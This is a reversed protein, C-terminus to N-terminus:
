RAQIFTAFDVLKHDSDMELVRIAGTEYGVLIDYKNSMTSLTTIREDTSPTSKEVDGSATNYIRMSGDDFGVIVQQGSNVFMAASPTLVSERLTFREQQLQIDWVSITGDAFAFVVNDSGQAYDLSWVVNGGQVALETPSFTEMDWVHVAGDTSGTVLTESDPSFVMSWIGHIACCARPSPTQLVAYEQIVQENDSFEYITFGGWEGTVLFHGNPSVALSLIGQGSALYTAEISKNVSNFFLLTGNQFAAVILVSNPLFKISTLPADSDYRLPFYMKDALDYLLITGDRDGFVLQGDYYDIDVILSDLKNDSDIVVQLALSSIQASLSLFILMISLKM